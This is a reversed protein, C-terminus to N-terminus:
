LKPITGEATMRGIADQNALVEGKIGILTRDILDDREQRSIEDEIALMYDCYSAITVFLKGLIYMAGIPDLNYEGAQERFAEALAPLIDEAQKDLASLYADIDVQNM